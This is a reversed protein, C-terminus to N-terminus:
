NRFAIMYFSRDEQLAPTSVKKEELNKMQHNEHYLAFSLIDMAAKVDAEAEVIPSLRAKAHASALRIVEM